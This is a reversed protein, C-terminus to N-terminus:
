VPEPVPTTLRVSVTVVFYPSKRLFRGAFREELQSLSGDLLHSANATRVTVYKLRAKLYLVPNLPVRLTRGRETILLALRTGVPGGAGAEVAGFATKQLAAQLRALRVPKTLYRRCGSRVGGRRRAHATVFVVLPAQAAGPRRRRWSRLATPATPM